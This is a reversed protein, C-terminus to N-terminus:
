CCSCPDKHLLMPPALSGSTFLLLMVALGKHVQGARLEQELEARARRL